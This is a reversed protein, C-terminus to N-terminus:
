TKDFFRVLGEFAYGLSTEASLRSWHPYWFHRHAVPLCAAGRCGYSISFRNIPHRSDLNSFARKEVRGTCNVPLNVDGELIGM